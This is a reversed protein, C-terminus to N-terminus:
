RSTPSRSCGRARQAELWPPLTALAYGSECRRDRLPAPQLAFFFAISPLVGLRSGSGHAGRSPRGRAASSVASRGDVVRVGPHLLLAYFPVAFALPARTLFAAGALLGILWARRKGWLEILCGLTLLTAILHGTHWVGGRTTVWLIQTSFGLLLSWGSATGSASVGIRGLLWWGMGVTSAPSFRTSGRSWGRGGHRARYDCRAAHPRDRPVSCIARLLPQRRRHDRREPRARLRAVDPRPPVRRGPLLPREARCRVTARVALVRPRRLRSVGVRSRGTRPALERARRSRPTCIGAM